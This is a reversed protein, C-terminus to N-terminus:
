GNRVTPRREDNMNKEQILAVIKEEIEPYATLIDKIYEDNGGQNTNKTNLATAQSGKVEYPMVYSTAVWVTPIGAKLEMFKLWMDDARWCIRKINDIDFTEDPLIGAPYLTGGGGTPCLFHSPLKEKRYEYGWSKYPQITGKSDFSMKHVRRACICDPYKKHTNILSEILDKSYVLDDDVTIIMSDKFEKMAYLYKKHPMLDDNTYRYEVGYKEFEKMENTIANEPINEDLWVIIKDPKYSQNILSKLTPIITKYRASYSALSVVIPEKNVSLGYTSKTKMVSKYTQRGIFNNIEKQIKYEIKRLYNM